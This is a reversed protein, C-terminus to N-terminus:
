GYCETIVSLYPGKSVIVYFYGIMCLIMYLKHALYLYDIFDILFLCLAYLNNYKYLLRVAM